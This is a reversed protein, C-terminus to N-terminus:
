EDDGIGPRPKRDPPKDSLVFDTSESVVADGGNIVDLWLLDGQVDVSATRHVLSGSSLEKDGESNSAPV